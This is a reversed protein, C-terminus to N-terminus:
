ETPPENWGSATFRSTLHSDLIQSTLHLEVARKEGSDLGDPLRLVRYGTIRGASDMLMGVIEVQQLFHSHPNYVIGTLVYHGDITDASFKEDLIPLPLPLHHSYTTHQLLADVRINEEYLAVDTFRAHYPAFGAPPLMKQESLTTKVLTGHQVSSVQVDVLINEVPVDLPNYVRGMCLLNHTPSDYCIPTEILLPSQSHAQATTIPIPTTTPQLSTLTLIPQPTWIMPAAYVPTTLPVYYNMEPESRQLLYWGIILLLTSCVLLLMWSPQIVSAM